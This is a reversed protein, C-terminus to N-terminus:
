NIHTRLYIGLFEERALYFLIVKNLSEKGWCQMAVWIWVEWWACKLVSNCIMATICNLFGKVRLCHQSQLLVSLTQCILDPHMYRTNYCWKSLWGLLVSKGFGSSWSVSFGTHIDGFAGGGLIVNKISEEQIVCYDEVTIPVETMLNGKFYISQQNHIAKFLSYLYAVSFRLLLEM